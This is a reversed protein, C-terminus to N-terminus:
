DVILVRLQVIISSLQENTYSVYLNHWGITLESPLTIFGLNSPTSYDVFEGTEEHVMRINIDGSTLTKWTINDGLHLEEGDELFLIPTKLENDDFIELNVQDYLAEKDEVYGQVSLLYRGRKLSLVDIDLTNQETKLDYVVSSLAYDYIVVRYLNETESTWTIVKNERNYFAYNDNGCVPASLPNENNSVVKFNMIIEDMNTNRISLSYDGPNLGFGDMDICNDSIVVTRHEHDSILNVEYSGEFDDVWRIMKPGKFDFFSRKTIFRFDSSQIVVDNSVETVIEEKPWPMMELVKSRNVSFVAIIVLLSALFYKVIDIRKSKDVIKHNLLDRIEAVSQIRESPNENLSNTLIYDIKRPNFGKSRQINEEMMHYGIHNMFSELVRGLNYVDVSDQILEETLLEPAVYPDLESESGLSIFCSRRLPSFDGIIVHTDTIYINTPKLTKITYGKKHISEVAVLLMQFLSMVQRPLLVKEKMLTELTPFPMYELVVYVTNNCEFSEIVTVLHKENSLGKIYIASERYYRKLQHFARIGEIEDNPLIVEGFDSRKLRLCSNQYEFGMMPFFEKIIVHSDTVSHFALYVFSDNSRHLTKKVVYPSDGIREGSSLANLNEIGNIKPKMKLLEDLHFM